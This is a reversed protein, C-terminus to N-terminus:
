NFIMPLVENARLYRSLDRCTHTWFSLQHAMRDFFVQRERSRSHHSARAYFSRGLDDFLQVNHRRRMQDRFFGNFFITQAGGIELIEPDSIEGGSMVFQDFVEALNKLPPLSKPCSSNATAYDALISAVYLTEDQAVREPSIMDHINSHFFRLADSVSVAQVLPISDMDM